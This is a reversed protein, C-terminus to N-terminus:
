TLSKWPAIKIFAALDMQKIRYPSFDALARDIRNDLTSTGCVEILLDELAKLTRNGFWTEKLSRLVTDKQMPSIVSEQCLHQLFKRIHVLPESLPFYPAEDGHVLCVEDDALDPNDCFQRAVEGWPLLGMHAMEAARIAGMSCLGYITWGAQLAERIERHSVSPYAHFTGDAIAMMGPPNNAVLHDVDGRRVPPLWQIAPDSVTPLEAQFISPGAFIFISTTM